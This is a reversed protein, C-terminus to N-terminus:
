NQRKTTPAQYQGTIKRPLLAVVIIFKIVTILVPFLTRRSPSLNNILWDNNRMYYGVGRRDLINQASTDEIKVGVFRWMWRGLVDCRLRRVTKWSPAWLDHSSRHTALTVLGEFERHTWTWNKTQGRKKKFLMCLIHLDGIVIKRIPRMEFASSWGCVRPSVLLAKVRAQLELDPFLTQDRLWGCRNRRHSATFETDKALYSLSRCQQPRQSDIRASGHWDRAADFRSFLLWILEWGCLSWFVQSDLSCEPSCMARKAMYIQYYVFHNKMQM